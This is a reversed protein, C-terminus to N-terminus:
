FFKFKSPVRSQILVLSTTTVNGALIEGDKDYIIGRNAELPLNRSWLNTAYSNLKEYSMVQIYFVKAVIVIFLIIIILLVLKMRENMKKVFMDDGIFNICM